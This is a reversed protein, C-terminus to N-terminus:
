IGSGGVARGGIHGMGGIVGGGVGGGICGSLLGGGLGVRVGYILGEGIGLLGVGVGGKVRNGLEKNKGWRVWLGIGGGVEGGGGM